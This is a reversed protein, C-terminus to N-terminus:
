ESLRQIETRSRTLRSEPSFSAFQTGLKGLGEHEKTLCDDDNSSNSKEFYFSM